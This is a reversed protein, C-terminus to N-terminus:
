RRLRRKLRRLIGPRSEGTEGLKDYGEAADAFYRKKTVRDLKRGTAIQDDSWREAWRVRDQHIWYHSQCPFSWNGISPRLSVSEGDFGLQWDTRSLPTVVENGCGCCCKHIATAFPISVYLVGEEPDDPVSEVFRHTVSNRKM